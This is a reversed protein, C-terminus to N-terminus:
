VPEVKSFKRMVDVPDFRYVVVNSLMIEMALIDYLSLTLDKYTYTKALAPYISQLVGRLSQGTYVREKDLITEFFGDMPNKREPPFFNFGYKYDLFRPDYFYYEFHAYSSNRTIKNIKQVDVYEDVSMVNGDIQAQKLFNQWISPEDGRYDHYLHYVTFRTLKTILQDLTLDFRWQLSSTIMDCPHPLSLKMSVIIMFCNDKVPELRVRKVGGFYEVMVKKLDQDLLGKLEGNEINKLVSERWAIRKSDERSDSTIKDIM